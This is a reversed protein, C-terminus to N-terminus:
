HETHDDSGSMVVEIVARRRTHDGLEAAPTDVVLIDGKVGLTKLTDALDTARYLDIGEREEMVGGGTLAVAARFGRVRVEGIPNARAYEAAELIVPSERSLTQGDFDYLVQFQRSLSGETPPLMGEGPAPSGGPGTVQPEETIKFADTAPLIADCSADRDPRISIMLNALVKGGCRRAQTPAGEILAQHGLSPLSGGASTDGQAGLYYLEGEHEALWCPVTATDRMVPCAVFALSQQAQACTFALAAASFAVVSAFTRKVM